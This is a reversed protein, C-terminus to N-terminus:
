FMTIDIAGPDKPSPMFIHYKQGVDILEVEYDHCQRHFEIKHGCTEIKRKAGSKNVARYCKAETHNKHIGDFLKQYKGQIKKEDDTLKVAGRIEIYMSHLSTQWDNVQDYKRAAIQEDRLFSIRKLTSLAMNFPTGEESGGVREDDAL